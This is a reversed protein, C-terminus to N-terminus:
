ATRCHDIALPAHADDTSLIVTATDAKGVVAAAPTSWFKHLTVTVVMAPLLGVVPTPVHLTSAPDAVIVETLEYLVPM